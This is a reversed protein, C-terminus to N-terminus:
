TAKRRLLIMKMGLKLRLYTPTAVRRKLYNRRDAATRTEKFRLTGNAQIWYGEVFLASAAVWFIMEDSPIPLLASM